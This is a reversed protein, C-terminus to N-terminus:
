CPNGNYACIANYSQYPTAYLSGPPNFLSWRSNGSFVYWQTMSGVPEFSLEMNHQATVIAKFSASNKWALMALGIYGDWVPSTSSGSMGYSSSPLGMSTANSTTPPFGDHGGEYTQAAVGITTATSGLGQYSWVNGALSTGLEAQNKKAAALVDVYFWDFADQQSGLGANGTSCAGSATCYNDAAYQVGLVDGGTITTSAIACSTSNLNYTGPGGGFVITDNAGLSRYTKGVGGGAGVTLHTGDVVAVVTANISGTTKNFVWMGASIGATSTVVWAHTNDSALAGNLTTTVSGTLQASTPDNLNTPKVFTGNCSTIGQNWWIPGTVAGGVTLVNGSISSSAASWAGYNGSSNYNGDVIGGHYYPADGVYSTFDQPRNPAANYNVGIANQYAQNGVGTLAGGPGNGALESISPGPVQWMAMMKGNGGVSALIGGMQRIRLMLYAQADGQGTGTFGISAGLSLVQSAPLFAGTNWPENSPEYKTFGPCPNAKALTALATFSADSWLLSPQLWCGTQVGSKISVAQALQLQVIWPWSSEMGGAIGQIFGKLLTSYTFGYFTNVALAGVNTTGITTTIGTAGVLNVTVTTACANSAFYISLQGGSNKSSVATPQATLTADAQLVSFVNSKITSSSDGNNITVNSTTHTGGALCTYAGLPTTNFTLSITGSSGATGGVGLILQPATIHFIPIPSSTVNNADTITLTPSATLNANVNLFQVYDGNQPAGSQLLYTCAQGSSCAISYNDTGSNSGFWNPIDWWDHQLNYSWASTTEWSNFGGPVSANLTRNVDLMRIHAPHLAAVKSVFDDNFGGAWSGRADTNCTPDINFDALRCVHVSTMSSFTSGAAWNIFLSPIVPSNDFEIQPNTGTINLSSFTCPPINANTCGSLTTGATKSYVTGPQSTSGNGAFLIGNGGVVGQVALVYHGSYVTSPLFASFGMRTSISGNPLNSGSLLNNPYIFTVGPGQGAFSVAMKLKDVFPDMNSDFGVIGSLASNAAFGANGHRPWAFAPVALLCILAAYFISRLLKM